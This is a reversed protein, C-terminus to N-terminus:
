WTAAAHGPHRPGAGRPERRHQHEPHLRTRGPTANILAAYETKVRKVAASTDFLSVTPTARSLAYTRLAEVGAKPMPHTYASNIYTLGDPILFDAKRPFDPAIAPLTAPGVSM